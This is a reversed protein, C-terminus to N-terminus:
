KLKGKSKDNNVLGLLKLRHTLKTQSIGLERTIEQYTMGSERMMKIKLMERENERVRPPIGRADRIRKVIRGVTPISMGYEKSILPISVQQDFYLAAIDEDPITQAFGRKRIGWEKACRMIVARSVGKEKALNKALEGDAYRLSVELRENDDLSWRSEAIKQKSETTHSKGKFSQGAFSSIRRSHKQRESDTLTAWWRKKFKSIKDKADETHTKGLWKTNGKSRESIKKRTEDSFERAKMQAISQDTHRFGLAGEGGLTLNYGTAFTDLENVYLREFLQAESYTACEELIESAFNDAGYKKIARAVASSPNPQTSNWQHEQWRQTFSRSTIGVYKKGNVNNTLLYVITKTMFEGVLLSAKQHWFGSGASIQYFCM